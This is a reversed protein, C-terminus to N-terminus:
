NLLTLYCKPLTNGQSGPISGYKLKKGMELEGDLVENCSKEVMLFAGGLMPTMDQRM